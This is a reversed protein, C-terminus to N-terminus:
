NGSLMQSPTSTPPTSAVCFDGATTPDPIPDIEEERVQVKKRMRIVLTPDVAAMWWNLGKEPVVGGTLFHVVGARLALLPKPLSGRMNRRYRGGSEDYSASRIATILGLAKPSM